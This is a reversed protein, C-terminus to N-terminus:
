KIEQVSNRFAEEIVHWDFGRRSLFDFLRKKEKMDVAGPSMRKRILDGAVEVETRDSYETEVARHASEADIGKTVLEQALLRKSVPRQLMRTHVYSSAFVQDDLLGVRLLDDVVSDVVPRSIGRDLLRQRVEQTSRTRYSILRLARRKGEAKEEARLIADVADQTLLDGEHVHSALVM